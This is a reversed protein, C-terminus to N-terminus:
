VHLNNVTVPLYMLGTKSHHNVPYNHTATNQEVYMLHSRFRHILACLALGSQWSTTLDTVRVNRYGETQKQCWTLLRGPRIESEVCVSLFLTNLLTFIAHFLSVSGLNTWYSCCLHKNEM